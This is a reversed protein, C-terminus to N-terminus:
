IDSKIIGVEFLPIGVGDLDLPRYPRQQIFDTATKDDSFEIYTLADDAPILIRPLQLSVRIDGASYFSLAFSLARQGILRHLNFRISYTPGRSSCTCTCMHHSLETPRNLGLMSSIRAPSRPGTLQHCVCTCPHRKYTDPLFSHLFEKPHEASPENSLSDTATHAISRFSRKATAVAHVEMILQTQVARESREDKSQKRYLLHLTLMQFEITIDHAFGAQPM